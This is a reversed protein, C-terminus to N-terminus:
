KARPKEVYYLDILKIRYNPIPAPFGAKNNWDEALGRLRDYIVGQSEHTEGQKFNVLNIAGVSLAYFALAIAGTVPDPADLSVAEDYYSQLDENSFECAFAGLNRKVRELQQETM